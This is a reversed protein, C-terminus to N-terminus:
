SKPRYQNTIPPKKRPDPNNVKPKQLMAKNKEVVQKLKNKIASM